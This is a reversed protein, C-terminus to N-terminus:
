KYIVLFFFAMYNFIYVGLITITIEEGTPFGEFTFYFWSKKMTKAYRGECDTAM